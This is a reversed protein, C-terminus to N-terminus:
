GDVRRYAVRWMALAVGASMAALVLSTAISSAWRFFLTRGDMAPMTALGFGYTLGGLFLVFGIGAGLLAAGLPGRRGSAHMVAWPALALATIGLATMVTGAFLAVVVGVASAGGAAVTLLAAIVGGILGGVGIALGVRDLSTEYQPRGTATRAM